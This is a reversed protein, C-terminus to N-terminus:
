FQVLGIFIALGYTVIALSYIYKTNRVSFISMAAILGTCSFAFDLWYGAGLLEARMFIAFLLMSLSTGLALSAKITM